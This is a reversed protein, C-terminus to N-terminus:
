MRQTTLKLIFLFISNLLYYQTSVIVQLLNWGTDLIYIDVGGGDRGMGPDYIADLCGERQDVRDLAWSATKGDAYVMTEEEIYEINELDKVQM